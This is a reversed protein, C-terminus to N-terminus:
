RRPSRLLGAYLDRTRGATVEADIALAAKHAAHALRLRAEEDRALREIAEALAPADGVPVAAAAEPAFDAIHGVATGVTPVGAVAAELAVLPGAEHRSSVVMLDAGEVWRRTEAHRLFGHFTVRDDLGLEGARRQVAGNLTDQGIVDLRFAMGRDKLARMAELLTAQDKVPNLNAVHVLRVPQDPDRRRPPSAPWRDLAVGFPICQAAVGFEAAQGALWASPAVTRAAGALAFRTSLRGRLTLQAGYGIDRIRALDGGPLTLVAPTGTLRAFAASVVGPRAAWFGHVVDFRGRRHEAMLQGLARLRVPRAGANHVVAGLLPWRDPRPEQDLAFVHLQDGGAALREILWLLCPIVREEGTRDVGGPVVWAIKV